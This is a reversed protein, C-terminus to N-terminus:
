GRPSELIHALFKSFMLFRGGVGGVPVPRLLCFVAVAVVFPALQMLQPLFLWRVGSHGSPRLSVDCRGHKLHPFGPRIAAFHVSGLVLMTWLAWVPLLVIRPMSVLSGGEVFGRGLCLVM